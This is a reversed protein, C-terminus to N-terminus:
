GRTWEKDAAARGLDGFDRARAQVFTDITQANRRATRALADATATDAESKRIRHRLLAARLGNIVVIVLGVFVVLATIALPVIPSITATPQQSPSVQEYRPPKYEPAPAYAPPQYHPPPDSPIYPEPVYRRPSGYCTRRCRRLCRRGRPMQWCEVIRCEVQCNQAAAANAFVIAASCRLVVRLLRVSRIM